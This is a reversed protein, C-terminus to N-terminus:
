ERGADASITAFRVDPFLGGSPGRDTRCRASPDHDSATSTETQGIWEPPVYSLQYLVQKALLPDGTRIRNDGNNGTRTLPSPRSASMLSYDGPPDKLPEGKAFVTAFRVHPLFGGSQNRDALPPPLRSASALLCDGPPFAGPGRRSV